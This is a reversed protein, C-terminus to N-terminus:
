VNFRFEVVDGDQMVYDKGEIRVKGRPSPRPWRAPTSSTTSPCSRPRSSAASSTPTSSAPPRPRPRASRSRGPGRRRRARRDPLDAARPHPLRRPRAPRLGSEDQGISQLLELAEDDPLEILEAEIKADLFIAEAPAVLARLEDKFRRTPRARGRRRQLRLPVAQRDAPAARAPRRPRHRGRGRRRVADHRTQLLEQAQQAAAM